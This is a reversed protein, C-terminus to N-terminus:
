LSPQTISYLLTFKKHILQGVLRLGQWMICTVEAKDITANSLAASSQLSGARKRPAM